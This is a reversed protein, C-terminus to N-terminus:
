QSMQIVANARLTNYNQLQFYRPYKENAVTHLTISPNIRATYKLIRTLLAKNITTLAHSNM